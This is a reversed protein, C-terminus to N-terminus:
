NDSRCLIDWDDGYSNSCNNSEGSDGSRLTVRKAVTPLIRIRSVLGVPIKQLLLYYAVDENMDWEEQRQILDPDNQAALIAAATAQNAAEVQAPDNPDIPQVAPPNTAQPRPLTGDFHKWKKKAKCAAKFIEHWDGWNEGTPELKPISSALQDQALSTM